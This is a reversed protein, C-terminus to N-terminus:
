PNGSRPLLASSTPPSLVIFKPQIPPEDFEREKEGQPLLHGYAAEPRREEAPRRHRADAIRLGHRILPREGHILIKMRPSLGRVRIALAIRGRGCPSLHVMSAASVGLRMM